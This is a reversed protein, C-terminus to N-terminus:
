ADAGGGPPFYRRLVLDLEGPAEQFFRRIEIPSFSREHGKEPVLTNFDQEVLVGATLSEDARKLLMTRCRFWSNLELWGGLKFQKAAHLEFDSPRKLPDLLWRDKCFHHAVDKAPSEDPAFRRIVCSVRQASENVAGLYAEGVDLVFNLFEPLAEPPIQEEEKVLDLRAPGAQLKLRANESQLIIRPFEAPAEASLPLTVPEGTFVDGHKGLLHTLARHTRFHLGATFIAAQLYTLHFSNADLM